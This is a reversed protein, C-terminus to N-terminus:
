SFLNRSVYQVGNYLGKMTSALIKQFGYMQICKMGTREFCFPFISNLLDTLFIVEKKWNTFSTIIALLISQVLAGAVLGIWLGKAKLHLRFGLLLAMPVGVLYYSGLNVYAGLRQWGTGRAVGVLM